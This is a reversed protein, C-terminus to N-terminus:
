FSQDPLQLLSKLAELRHSFAAVAKEEAETLGRANKGCGAYRCFETDANNAHGDPCIYKEASGFISQRREVYGRRPLKDIKTRLKEMPEIDASSYTPQFVDIVSLAFSINGKDIIRCLSDADFLNNDRILSHAAAPATTVDGYIADIAELRNIVSIYRPFEEIAIDHLVDRDNDDINLAILYKKYLPRALGRMTNEIIFQWNNKTPFVDPREILELYRLRVEEIHLQNFDVTM